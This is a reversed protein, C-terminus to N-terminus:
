QRELARLLPFICIQKTCCPIRDDPTLICHTAATNCKNCNEGILDPIKNIPVIRDETRM